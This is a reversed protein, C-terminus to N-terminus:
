LNEFGGYSGGAEGIWEVIGRFGGKLAKNIFIFTSQSEGKLPAESAKLHGSQKLDMPNSSAQWKDQQFREVEESVRAQM